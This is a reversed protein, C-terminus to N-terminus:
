NVSDLAARHPMRVDASAHVPRVRIRLLWYLMVAIPLLVAAALLAPIRIVEPVRGQPGWFFSAAAVWMAFCMRWLHRTIRRAGPITGARIVRFDGAAALVAVIGFVFIPATEPRGSGLLSFGTGFAALGLVVAYAMAAREIWQSTEPRSRVTFLATVVFYFTILGAVVSVQSGNLTAILAGSLSMLVMAYVFGTGSKRHVTAGKTAYLAVYGFVLALAGGLIHFPLIAPIIGQEHM